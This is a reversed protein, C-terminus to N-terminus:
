VHAHRGGHWAGDMRCRLLWLFYPGGLLTTVVGVPLRGAGLDIMQRAADAGCVLVAGCLSAAPVLQRHSAGVLMRAVHPAVLGVFGIPGCLAVTVATVGAALVLAVLRTQGPQGGITSATEHDLLLADLRGHWMTMWILAGALLVALGSVAGTPVLEPITGLSWALFQGRVGDPVMGQLLVMGAGCM